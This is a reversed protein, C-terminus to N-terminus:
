GGYFCGLRKFGTGCPVLLDTASRRFGTVQAGTIAPITM